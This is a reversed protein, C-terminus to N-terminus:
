HQAMWELLTPWVVRPAAKGCIIDIHGWGPAAPGPEFVRFTKDRSAAREFGAQMSVPPVVADQAGVGFFIPVSLRGFGEEYDVAGCSSVLRGTAAWRVMFEAIPVSTRDFGSRIREQLVHSEISRPYWLKLPFLSVPFDFYPLGALLVSGVLDVGLHPLLRWAPLPSLRGIRHLVSGLAPLLRTGRGFHVPGALSIIGRLDAQLEPGACYALTGGLSHGLFFIRSQGSVARVQRVLAPLDHRVYAEFSEPYPAGYARSLGHGRLEALFVDFGHAVLYNAFSRQRLDWSFRNQGLGHVLLAAGRTPASDALRKRLAILRVGDSTPVEVLERLVGVSWQGDVVEAVPAPVASGHRVLQHSLLSM